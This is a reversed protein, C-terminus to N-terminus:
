VSLLPLGNNRAHRNSSIRIRETRHKQRLTSITYYTKMTTSIFRTAQVLTTRPHYCCWVCGLHVGKDEDFQISFSTYEASGLFGETEFSVRLESVFLM